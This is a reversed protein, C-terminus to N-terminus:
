RGKLRRVVFEHLAQELGEDIPPKKYEALRKPLMEAAVVSVMKAGRERWKHYDDRTFIKPQYLKRCHNFTTDHILYNGDSGLSKITDVDISNVNIDM